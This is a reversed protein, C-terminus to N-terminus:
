FIDVIRYSPGLSCFFYLLDEFENYTQYFTSGDDREIVATYRM